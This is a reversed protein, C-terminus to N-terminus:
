FSQFSNMSINRLIAELSPTLKTQTSRFIFCLAFCPVNFFLQMCPILSSPSLTVPHDLFGELSFGKVSLWLVVLNTNKKRTLNGSCACPTISALSYVSTHEYSHGDHINNDTHICSGSVQMDFLVNAETLAEVLQATNQFHVNDTSVAFYLTVPPVHSLAAKSVMELATFSFITWM